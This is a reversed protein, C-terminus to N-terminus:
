PEATTRSGFLNGFASSGRVRVGDRELELFAAAFGHHDAWRLGEDRGMVYLATSLIDAVLGREHWVVVSGTWAAPRGTRPDLIHGVRTGNVHTDRESGGSTALSGSAVLISGIPVDRRQPHALDVPWGDAGPPTGRVMVQGGIDIMWPSPDYELRTIARDLAEGKGFGGVDVSAGETLNVQCRIRDFGLRQWGSRDRASAIEHPAPVRPRDHLGWSASLPGVAPDFAGGTEHAWYELTEFLACLDSPLVFPGRRASLNLRSIASDERWTSLQAESDELVDLLTELRQAGRARDRDFTVLTARTGMLYAVRAIERPDAPRTVAESAHPSTTVSAPVCAQWALVLVFIQRLTM